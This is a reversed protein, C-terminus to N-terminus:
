LAITSEPASMVNVGGVIAVNCEGSRLSQCAQHLAVLSSSCATDLQVSPGRLDLVYSIRGAAISRTNGLTTYPDISNRDDSHLIRRAYDDVCLGIWVGTASGRLTEPPIGADELAEWSCELLLRQQPDMGLAERPSIGFFEADFGDIKDLFAGRKVYVKGPADPDADYLQEADWRDSPVDSTTDVGALLLNWFQEPNAVGGPFRCGIGVIAIPESRRQRELELQRRAEKLLGLIREDM